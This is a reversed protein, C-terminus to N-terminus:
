PVKLTIETGVALDCPSDQLAAGGLSGRRRDEATGQQRVRDSRGLRQAIVRQRRRIGRHLQDVREDVAEAGVLLRHLAGRLRLVVDGQM